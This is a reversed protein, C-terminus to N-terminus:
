RYLFGSQKWATIYKMMLDDDIPGITRLTECYERTKSVDLVLGGCSMPIFYTDFFGVLQLAPNDNISSRFRRVRDVWQTYPVINQPPLDLARALTLMMQKWPQRSPNDVHYILDTATASTLLEGLTAAVEDVPYWSLTGVLDPLIKLVQSSKILFPMYETPNWYGNHTSGSIQAIRVAMTHFRDPYRHLTQGLIHECTLKAEAYGAQPVSEVTTSQEPVLADGKWLRYNGVVAISSIFQFGFRFPAPRYEAVDRALDILNRFIKFQIEYGRIPRTLSMPWASHVIYTVTHVLFNYTEPSLGLFPKSTDTDIVKLKSMSTSDLSIGRMELSKEQRLVADINSLRNLCVVTHVDPLQALSAVIHSGLSGTAGTVLMAKGKGKYKGPPSDPPTDLVIHAIPPRFDRTYKHIYTDITAQRETADTLASPGPVSSPLKPKTARDLQNGTAHAIILRQMNAEPLDGETWDVHGYGVSHLTKEWYAAPALVYSRDDEFLWWGDVLGFVFDVWPLQETMELLMLFGDPRLMHHINTLSVSLDRTAHVCNTSLVIHQSHSLSPDPKSEIDLVKFEIFPYQKFRKRAAAVLSGSLDTMTYRVPVGLSALMPVLKSTTGGTGAGVELICLPDSNWDEFESLKGILQKLFYELQQIWIGTFPSNAYMDTLMERGQPTGFMLQVGEEKGTLCDAFKPGFLSVLKHEAAHVPEDRLLEELLVEASKIPTAVATRIIESGNIDILRSEYELLKYMLDMFRDHKPLSSIRELRQGPAASKIPCGLQELANLIYVVCLETSRPVVKDYYAGLKGNTIFDDTIWKVEHFIDIVTSVSLKAATGSFSLCGNVGNIKVNNVDTSGARTAGNINFGDIGNIQKHAQNTQPATEVEDESSNGAEPANKMEQDDLGLTSRICSVLSQFDTLEMLQDNSLTCKFVADVERVVEMAMLSDIGLEILDSDDKIEGPEIGSLNCVIERTKGFINPNSPKPTKKMTRTKKPKQLPAPTSVSSTTHPQLTQFEPPTSTIVATPRRSEVQAARLLARRIGEMSVKQYSVGLIAEVLTGDRADFAFVDSIYKNDSERHHVAFVEWTKPLSTHLGLEPNRIWRDIKDCIFIGRDSLDSTDTMLNVYLGAVQCFSESLVSDMWAEGHYSKTICGASEGDRGAIKTMNRYPEKWDVVQEFARYINRGQLIEEAHNGHLLDMCRKRGSLRALSLFDEKLQSNSVPRFAVTGSTYDKTVDASDTVNLRWQWILREQDNSVADLYLAMSPDVVFINKHSMGRMEPQFSLDKFEPKLNTLADLVIDLQLMSSPMTATNVVLTAKVLRQFKNIDTNVRFRASRKEEDQYGIFTTLGKPVEATQTQEVAAELEPMSKMEMWHKAEEFQYPPLLIPTFESVQRSNHSWFSVNLGEKWLKTTADVLFQFSGNGTINIPQFHAANLGGLARSAMTTITSNSGAELWIAEPFEKALRQVAHNFFVPNRLHKGVFSFDLKDISKHETAREIRINPENFVIERGLADLGNMLPDVLASHFANTVNLRKIRIGSFSHDNEVLDQMFQIAKTSGAITFSRPGNYCAISPDKQNGFAKRSKTLFTEVDALDAEVALMSGKEVGWNDRILSARGSILKFADELSCADSVCLAVLEGFSHGVMAAVKVGSDVWTRACCYQTAFLITQLKVIDQVPSRQFIDPFISGLGFSQCIADCQGLRSKLIAVSDYIDRDLGVYTSIQGGFCLIVPRAPRQQTSVITKDGSEFAKLKQKLDDSTKATLILAQPLSRNSQRSVQFSLNSASLDRASGDHNQLLRKFKTTYARLSREDLGCFWFPFSKDSALEIEQKAVLNPYPLRPPQTVIMSANSGSAGYNNILAARFDVDWPKLRTPIEIKDEPVANLSPNVSTFSVQPPISRENIMLLLKLLSLVGSSFETHGIQGKVSSLYLTDLRTSGGLAKRIGDYEAPDGVPTGTGHAEVVSIDKPELRAGMVVDEFLGTLSVANPVTIATCNQNQYVRTSAIVGLVQDGDKIASSLKKLFVVGAGEGRCYGDGKADFPKCQGTPSLFSAGALNHFWDPSTFINVGGALAATCEGHLIARCANHIAVSSSSCATDLTLSPGTWGFYHSVKGSIFARLNGTASYANAPYCAINRGYDVNGVGIYCGIHKDFKQAGFYGAQEVAQYALKLILRHQPDTSAMERPSKKFFKHDFTDHNQIFNGYWRRNPELKRWATYMSFRETPVETHQSEGGALMEWYEELDNAGPAHCSMGIVAIRDDPLDVFPSTVNQLLLSSPLPSTSLDIDSINVVRSGMKRAITPPVCREPGFCIVKSDDATLQSSYLISFTKIWESLELLCGRLAATHLSGTSLYQGGTELRSPFVLSLVDPLQFQRNQSCFKILKEVDQEHKRWHFRGSLAVDAVHM